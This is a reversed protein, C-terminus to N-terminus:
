SFVFCITCGIRHKEDYSHFAIELVRDAPKVYRKLIDFHVQYLLEGHGDKELRTWERDGYNDYRNRPIEPNYSM